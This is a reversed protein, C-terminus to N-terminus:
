CWYSPLVSRSSSYLINVKSLADASRGREPGQLFGAAVSIFYQNEAPKPPCHAPKAPLLEPCEGPLDNKESPPSRLAITMM